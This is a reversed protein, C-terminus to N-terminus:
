PPCQALIASDWEEIAKAVREAAEAAGLRSTDIRAFPLAEILALRDRAYALTELDGRAALRRELEAPSAVLHLIFSREALDSLSGLVPQYLAARAFVWALVVLESGTEFCERLAAVVDPLSAFDDADLVASNPFRGRLLGVVTSKGVGPPGGLLVLRRMRALR